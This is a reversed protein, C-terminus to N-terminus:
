SCVGTGAGRRVDRCSSPVHGAEFGVVTSASVKVEMGHVDVLPSPTRSLRVKSRGGLGTRGDEMRNGCASGALRVAAHFYRCTTAWM